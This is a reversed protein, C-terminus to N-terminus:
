GDGVERGIAAPRECPVIGACDSRCSVCTCEDDVLHEADKHRKLYAQHAEDIKDFISM